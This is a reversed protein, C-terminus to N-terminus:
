DSNELEACILKLKKVCKAEDLCHNFEELDLEINDAYERLRDIGLGGPQEYLQAHYVWFRGQNHACQAAEAAQISATSRRANDRWVVRM